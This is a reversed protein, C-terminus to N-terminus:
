GTTAHLNGVRIASLRQNQIGPPQALAQDSRCELTVDFPLSRTIGDTASLVTSRQSGAGNAIASLAVAFRSVRTAYAQAGVVASCM